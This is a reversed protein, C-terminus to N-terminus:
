NKIIKTKYVQENIKLTLFYVGPAHNSMNLSIEQNVTQENQLLLRQGLSNYLSLEANQNISQNFRIQLYDNIPNPYTIILGEEFDKTSLACNSTSFLTPESFVTGLHTVGWHYLSNNDKVGDGYGENLDISILKWDTDSDLQTPFVASSGM